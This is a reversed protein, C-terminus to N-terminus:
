VRDQFGRWVTVHFQAWGPWDAWRIGNEYVSGVCSRCCKRFSPVAAARPPLPYYSRNGYEMPLISPLAFASAGRVGVREGVCASPFPSGTPWWQQSRSFAHLCFVPFIAHHALLYRTHSGKEEAQTPFLPQPIPPSYP